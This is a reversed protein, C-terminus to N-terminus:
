ASLSSGRRGGPWFGTWGCTLGRGRRFGLAGVAQDPTWNGAVVRVAGALADRLELAGPSSGGLAPAAPPGTGDQIADALKDLTDTMVLPPRNGELWLRAAAEAIPHTQNLVAMLHMLEQNRGTITSRTTLVQDYATNLATTAGRRADAFGATGVSRLEQGLARYASAISRLRM